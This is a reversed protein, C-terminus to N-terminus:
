ARLLALLKMYMAAPASIAAPEPSSSPKSLEDNVSFRFLDRLERICCLYASKEEGPSELSLPLM